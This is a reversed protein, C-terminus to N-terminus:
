GGRAQDVAGGRGISAGRSAAPRPAPCWRWRRGCRRRPLRAAATACRGRRRGGDRKRGLAGKEGDEVARAPRRDAPERREVGVPHERNRPMCRGARRCALRVLRGAAAGGGVGRASPAAARRPAEGRAAAGAEELRSRHPQEDGPGLGVGPLSGGREGRMPWSTRTWGMSRTTKASRRRGQRLGRRQDDGAAVADARDAAQGAASAQSPRGRKTVPSAVARVAASAPKM